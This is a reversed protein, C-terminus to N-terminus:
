LAHYDRSENVLLNRPAVDPHSIGYELSLDDVVKILQQLWKLKFIRSRNAELNGGPVYGSTFGVVRGELEDVVIRGFPIINLCRPLRIWLDM